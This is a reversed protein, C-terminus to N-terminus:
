IRCVSEWQGSKVVTVDTSFHIGWSPRRSPVKLRPYISAVVDSKERNFFVTEGGWNPDWKEHPYYITTFSRDSTSDTHLTGESGFPQGNAYCRLLRHGPLMIEGLRDWFQRLVPANRQLEDTCDYQQGAGDPAVHDPNINGAFHKHWFSFSETNKNSKWGFSWGSRNLYANVRKRTDQDIADDLVVFGPPMSQAFGPPPAPREALQLDM